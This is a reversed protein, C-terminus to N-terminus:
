CYTGESERQNELEDKDVGQVDEEQKELLADMREKEDLRQLRGVRHLELDLQSATYLRWPAFSDKQTLECILDTTFEAWRHHEEYNPRSSDHAFNQIETLGSFSFISKVLNTQTDWFKTKLWDSLRDMSACNYELELRTDEREDRATKIKQERSVKDLDFAALPLKEIEPCTENEDLLKVVKAKLKNFEKFIAAQKKVCLEQEELFQKKEMWETWTMNEREEEPAFEQLPRSLMDLIHQDLSGYDKDIMKQKTIYDYPIQYINTSSVEPGTAEPEYYKMSVLSGDHGLAIIIEGSAKVLAKLVGFDKRHHTMLVFKSNKVTKDRVIVIGDLGSTTIWEGDAFVSTQKLQHGSVMADIISIETLDQVRLVHLQKTLYPAGVFLFQKTNKYYKKLTSFRKYIVSQCIKDKGILLMPNGPVYELNRYGESFQLIGIIDSFQKEGRNIEYLLVQQGMIYEKSTRHLVFIRVSDKTDFAVVDLVYNNVKLQGVVFFPKKISLKICYLVGRAKEGVVLFSFLLFIEIM